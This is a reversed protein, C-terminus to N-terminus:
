PRETVAGNWVGGVTGLVKNFRFRLIESCKAALLGRARAENLDGCLWKFEGWLERPLDRRKLWGIWRAAQGERYYRRRVQAWTEEHIHHLPADHAYTIVFGQRRAWRAWDIDELGPLTEDFPHKEWLERRIASNANNAFFHDTVVRPHPGFFRDFDLTEAFKSSADGLQRGYSMAVEPRERLDRVLNDLWREHAPRTHASAIAVFRGACARIGRNLSRGFSFDKPAITELKAGRERAISVTRDTSGSDVVVIEVDKATQRAIGDLLAPLHREENLARVVVSIEPM